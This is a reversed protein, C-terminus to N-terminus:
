DNKNDDKKNEVKQETKEGMSLDKSEKKENQAIPKETILGENQLAEITRRKIEELRNQEHLLKEQREKEQQKKKKAEKRNMNIIIQKVSKGKMIADLEEQYAVNKKLLLESLAEVKDWNDKLIKEARNYNYNLIKLIEEDIKNATNNSYLVQNQYDRGIFVETSSGLNIFGLDTSMGFETVMKRAIKTAQEIDNSAGTTIDGFKIAESIRGGMFSAIMDNLKNLTAYNDDTDPRSLTYGGAMGRPIISVEQVEDCYKLMKHLITHGSEHFATIERDRQTMVRSKKQPGMMVKNVAEQVDIMNIKLRNDRGALIAAENLLNELDAGSFGSTLKAINDLDVESTFKKNKAHVKLIEKRAKVDPMNIYVQRDFRGPRLLAPDLVDPRNTAAIVIIGENAEFGDMQVLLQNLTQEREDNGGGLGAGRQRGVADIEDIFVICPASRKAQDFLDRVRSAGVGVYMEVFDSGSISFFPANCEGAIAKALLTKGTGPPGVLLVGKPIRAGLETYKRPNKLFDVIEKLEEKEEESGAVDSFKVKSREVNRARSKGFAVNKNNTDIVAKVIVFGIIGIVIISLYPLVRSFFNEKVVGYSKVIQKEPTGAEVLGDNYSKIFDELKEMGASTSVIFYADGVNSSAFKKVTIKSDEYRVYITTGVIKINTVTKEGSTVQNTFEDYQIEKGSPTKFFLFAIFVILLLMVIYFLWNGRRNKETM